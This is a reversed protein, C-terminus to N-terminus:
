EGRGAYISERSDDVFHTAAPHLDICLHLKETWDNCNRSPLQFQSDSEALKEAVAQLIFSEVDQGTAAARERLKAETASPIKVQVTM